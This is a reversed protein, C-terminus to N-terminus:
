NTTLGCHTCIDFKSPWPLTRSTERQAINAAVSAALGDANWPRGNCRYGESPRKVSEIFTHPFTQIHSGLSTKMAPKVLHSEYGCGFGYRQLYWTGPLWISYLPFYCTGSMSPKTGPFIHLRDLPTEHCAFCRACLLRASTLSDCCTTDKCFQSSKVSPKEEDRRPRQLFLSCVKSVACHNSGSAEHFIVSM